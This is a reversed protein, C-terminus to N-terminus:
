AYLLVILAMWVIALIQIGFLSGRIRVVSETQEFSLHLSSQAIRFVLVVIALGSIWPGTVGAVAATLAVAAYLPLNEVCNLHARMARQHYAPGEAVGGPFDSFKEGNMVRKARATAVGALLVAITWFVYLILVYLPTTM